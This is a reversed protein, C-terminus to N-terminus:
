RQVKMEWFEEKSIPYFQLQDGARIFFPEERNPDYIDIPTKGIINWGGPSELPYIGTQSGGIGVTGKPVKLRPTHLRPTALKENLEGLYPFGPLFGIMYVTYLTSSHLTIIEGRSLGTHSMVREMDLGFEGDYCVPIRLKRTEKFGEGQFHRQWKMLLSQIFPGKDKLDKKLYVTVTLYSPVVEEMYLHSEKEVMECFQQVRNFTEKGVESGFAFRISREGTIHVYPFARKSM